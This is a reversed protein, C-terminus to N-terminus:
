NISETVFLFPPLHLCISLFLGRTYIDVQFHFSPSNVSLMSGTKLLAVILSMLVMTCNIIRTKGRPLLSKVYATKDPNTTLTEFHKTRLLEQLDNFFTVKSVNPQKMASVKLSDNDSSNM